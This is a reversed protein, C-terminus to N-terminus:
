EHTRRVPLVISGALLKVFQEKTEVTSLKSFKFFFDFKKINSYPLWYKAEPHVQSIDDCFSLIENDCYELLMHLPESSEPM